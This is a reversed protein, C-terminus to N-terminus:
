IVLLIKLLEGQARLGPFSAQSLLDWRSPWLKRCLRNAPWGPLWHKDKVM